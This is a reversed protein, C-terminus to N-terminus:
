VSVNQSYYDAQLSLAKESIQLPNPLLFNLIFRCLLVNKYFNQILTAFYSFNNRVKARSLNQM